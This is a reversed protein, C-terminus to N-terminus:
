LELHAAIAEMRRAADRARARLPSTSRAALMGAVSAAQQSAEAVEPLHDANTSADIIRQRIEALEDRAALRRDRYPATEIADELLQLELTAAKLQAYTRAPLVPQQQAMALFRAEDRDM